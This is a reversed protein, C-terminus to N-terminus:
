LTWYENEALDQKFFFNLIFNLVYREFLGVTCVAIITEYAQKVELM